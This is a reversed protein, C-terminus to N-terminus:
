PVSAESSSVAQQEMIASDIAGEFTFVKGAKTAVGTPEAPPQRVVGNSVGAAFADCLKILGKVTM